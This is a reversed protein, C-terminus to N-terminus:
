KRVFTGFNLATEKGTTKYDWVRIEQCGRVKYRIDLWCRLFHWEWFSSIYFKNEVSNFFSFEAPSKMVNM